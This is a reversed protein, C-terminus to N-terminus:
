KEPLIEVEFQLDREAVKKLLYKLLHRHCFTDKPCYCCLVITKRDHEARRLLSRWTEPSKGFSINMLRIYDLRYQKESIRGDKYGMVIEWSPAFAKIGSKVTIDIVMEGPRQVHNIRATTIKVVKRVEKRLPLNSFSELSKRGESTTLDFYHVQGGLNIRVALWTRSPQARFAWCVEWGEIQNDILRAAWISSGGEVQPALTIENVVKREVPRTEQFEALLQELTM